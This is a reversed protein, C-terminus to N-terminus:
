RLGDLFEMSERLSIRSCRSFPFNLFGHYGDLYKITRPFIHTRHPVGADGLIRDFAQSETHMPDWGGAALYCPPFGETIYRAPSAAEARRRYEEGEEGLFGRVLLPGFPFGTTVVTDFDFAGYFLLLGRLSSSPIPREIALEDLLGPKNVACAYIASFQAGASDGALFIRTNDGGYETAHDYAWRIAKGVDSIQGPFGCPPALRYNVNVVLYGRDAYCRCIRRYSKKDMVHFGSGHIFILVPHPPASGPVFVDLSQKRRNDKEYRVDLIERGAPPSDLNFFLLRGWWELFAMVAKLTYAKRRYTKEEM